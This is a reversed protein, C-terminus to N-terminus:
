KGEDIGVRIYGVDALSQKKGDVTWNKATVADIAVRM